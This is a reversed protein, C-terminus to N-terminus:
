RQEASATSPRVERAGLRRALREAGGADQLNSTEIWWGGLVLLLTVGTNATFFLFPFDLPFPSVLKLLWWCLALALHVGLVTAAVALAFLLVLRVTQGRAEEQQEFFRM